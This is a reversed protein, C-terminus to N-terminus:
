DFGQEGLRVLNDLIDDGEPKDHDLANWIKEYDVNDPIDEVTRLQDRLAENVVEEPTQDTLKVVINVKEMVDGDLSILSMSGVGKYNDLGQQIYNLVLEELNLNNEWCVESLDDILEDEIKVNIEVM